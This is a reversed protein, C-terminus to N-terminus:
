NLKFPLVYEVAVSSRLILLQVTCTLASSVFVCMPIHVAIEHCGMCPIHFAVHNLSASYGIGNEENGIAHGHM